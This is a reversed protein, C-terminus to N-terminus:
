NPVVFISNFCGRARDPLSQIEINNIYFKVGPQAADLSYRTMYINQNQALFHGISNFGNPDNTTVLNNNKYYFNTGIYYKDTGDWSFDTIGSQSINTPISVDTNTLINKIYFNNNSDALSLYLGTNDSYFRRPFLNTTLPNYINNKYYGVNWNTWNGPTGFYRKSMYVDNNFFGYCGMSLDGGTESTELVTRIGNKWSCFLYQDSTSTPTPNKIIGNFYIDGNKVTLNNYLQLKFPESATNPAVNLYDAVNYKVGNKWFYWAAITNNGGLSEINNAMMYVNGNEVTIYTGLLNEGGPLSIKQGNKWYCANFEDVGGIYVDYSNVKQELTEM